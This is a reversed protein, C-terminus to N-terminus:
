LASLLMMYVPITVISLLTSLSVVVAAYESDARYFSSLVVIQAMAPLSAMIIFVKFMLLPMPLFVSLACIMLPSVVFRGLLVWVIDANLRIKRLDLKHLTVGIFILALPTTMNGLYHAADMFFGPLSLGTLILFIAALFGIMPGSFIKKLTGMSFLSVKKQGASDQSLSYNGVTWFFTTNAFFYLLTYPLATEGFLALTVPLGVFISNSNVFAAHFVGIHQRNVKFFRGVLWSCFFCLIMSLFPISAGYLLQGLDERHFAHVLSYILFMPLAVYNVLRPLVAETQQNFWGKAALFYGVASILLLTLVGQVAHLFVEM